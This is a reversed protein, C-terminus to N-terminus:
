FKCIDSNKPVVFTCLAINDDICDLREEISDRRKRGQGCHFGGAHHSEVTFLMDNWYKLGADSYGLRGSLDMEIWHEGSLGADNPENGGVSKDWWKFWTVPEGDAGIWTGEKLEDSFGLWMDHKQKGGVLEFYYDNQEENRPMPLHLFSADQECINRAQAINHTGEHIKYYVHGLILKFDIIM